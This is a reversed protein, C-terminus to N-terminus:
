SRLQAQTVIAQPRLLRVAAPDDPEDPVVPKAMRAVHTLQLDDLEQPV